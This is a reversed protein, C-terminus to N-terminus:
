IVCLLIESITRSIAVGGIGEFTLAIYSDAPATLILSEIQELLKLEEAKTM